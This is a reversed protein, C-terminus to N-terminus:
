RRHAQHNGHVLTTDASVVRVGSKDYIAIEFPDDVGPEGADGFKFTITAGDVGNLRGTGTGRYTDFGAEPNEEEWDASDTCVIRSLSALHFRNGEWNVQLRNPGKVAPCRLEFGHTIKVGRKSLVEGGGTMRGSQNGPLSGEGIAATAGILSGLAVAATIGRLRWSRTTTTTEEM